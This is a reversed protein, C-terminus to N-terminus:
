EQNAALYVIVFSQGTNMTSRSADQQQLHPVVQAHWAVQQWHHLGLVFRLLLICCPLL